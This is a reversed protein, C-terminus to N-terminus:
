AVKGFGRTRHGNQSNVEPTGPQVPFAVGPPIELGSNEEDGNDPTAQESWRKLAGVTGNLKLFTKDIREFDDATKKRMLRIEDELQDHKL